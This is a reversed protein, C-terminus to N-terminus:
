KVVKYIDTSLVVLSKNNSTAYRITDIVSRTPEMCSKGETFGYQEPDQIHALVKSMRKALVGSFAKFINELMSLGRYSDENKPDRGPKPIFLVKRHYLWPPRDVPLQSFLLKNAAKVLVDQIIPYITKLLRNSIGLPGPVSENKMGTIVEKLEEACVEASLMDHLAMPCKAAMDALPQGLFNEITTNGVTDDERAIEGFKHSMYHVLEQDRVTRVPNGPIELERIERAPRTRNGLSFHYRTVREGAIAYKLFNRESAIVAKAVQHVRLKDRADEFQELNNQDNVNNLRDRADILNQTLTHLTARRKSKAEKTIRKLEGRLTNVLTTLLHLPCTSSYDICYQLQTVSLDGENDGVSARLINALTGHITEVCAVNNLLSDDMRWDRMGVETLLIRLEIPAHDGVRPLVDIEAGTLLDQTVYFRDYRAHTDEHRYRFYTHRPNANFLEEPDFLLENGVLGGWHAETNRRLTVSTSDRPDTVFNFDGCIIMEDIHYNQKLNNISQELRQVTLLASADTDPDGYFNTLLFFKDYHVFVNILFQGQDDAVATIQSINLRPSFLTLVGRRSRQGPCASMYVEPHGWKSRISNLKSRKLKTEQFMSIDFDRAQQIAANLKTQDNLGQVNNSLLKM